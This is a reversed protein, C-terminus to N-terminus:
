YESTDFSARVSEENLQWKGCDKLMTLSAKSPFSMSYGTEDENDMYITIGSDFSVNFRMTNEDIASYKDIILDTLDEYEYRYGLCDLDSEVHQWLYQQLQAAIEDVPLSSDQDVMTLNDNFVLSRLEKYLNVETGKGSSGSYKSKEGFLTERSEKPVRELLRITHDFYEQSVCIEKTYLSNLTSASADNHIDTMLRVLAGTGTTKCIITGDVAGPKPWYNEFVDYVAAYYSLLEVAMYRVDDSQTKSTKYISWIGKLSFNRMLAEVLFAQSVYGKGTGIMKIQNLYPSKPNENLVKTLNHALYIHNQKWQNPDESYQSGFVEYYLSRNVPKQHFNVNVFVQGQEWLDYNVLVVCNFKYGKLFQLIAQDDSSLSVVTTLKDYLSKMAMMRHQGDVIFINRSLSLVCSSESINEITNGDDENVALILSSPFLATISYGNKESLVCQRIFTEIKYLRKEDIRRQYYDYNEKAIVSYDENISQRPNAKCTFLVTDKLEMFPILAQLVMKGANAHNQQILTTIKSM